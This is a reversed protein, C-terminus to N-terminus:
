PRRICSTRGARRARRPAPSAQADDARQDAKEDDGASRGRADVRPRAGRRRHLRRRRRGCTRGPCTTSVDAAARRPRHRLRLAARRPAGQDRLVLGPRRRRGRGHRGAGRGRHPRLRLLLHRARGEGRLAAHAAQRAAARGGRGRDADGLEREQAPDIDATARARWRARHAYIVANPYKKLLEGRIVLVVEEESDGPPRATTTTASSRRQPWPAAAPHRAAEQASARNARRRARQARGLVPPVPQRAPRDPVRAVAARPRVRPQARGHVGRHVGPQDRAAHHQEARHLNINPLFLEARCGALPEYMPVDIVPIPWRRSSTARRARRTIRPPVRHRAARPAPDHVDPDIAAVVTRALRCDLATPAPAEGRDGARRRLLALRAARGQLAHGGRQRDGGLTAIFGAGPERSCSTPATDAARRRRGADLEGRRARAGRRRPAGLARCGTLAVLAGAVAVVARAGIRRGAARARAAVVIAARAAVAPALCAAACRTSRAAPRRPQCRRPSRGRDARGAARSRRRRPSRAPTSARSCCRAPRRTQTSRCRRVIRARPRTMRRMPASAAGAAVRSASRRHAVTM